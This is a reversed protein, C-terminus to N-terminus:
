LVDRVLRGVDGFRGISGVWIGLGLELLFEVVYVYTGKGFGTSKDVCSLLEWRSLGAFFGLFVRFGLGVERGWCRGVM